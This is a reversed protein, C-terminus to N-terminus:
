SSQLSLPIALPLPLHFAQWLTFRATYNSDRYLVNSCNPCRLVNMLSLSFSLSISTLFGLQSITIWNSSWLLTASCHLPAYVYHMVHFPPTAARSSSSSSNWCAALEAAVWDLCELIVRVWVSINVYENMWENVSARVGLASDRCRMSAEAKLEVQIAAM